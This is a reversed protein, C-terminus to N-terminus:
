ARFHWVTASAKGRARYERIGSTARGRLALRRRKREAPLLLLRLRDSATREAAGRRGRCLTNFLTESLYSRRGYDPMPEPKM